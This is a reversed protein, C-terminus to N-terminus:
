LSTIRDITKQSISFTIGPFREVLLSQIEENTKGHAMYKGTETNYVFITDDEAEIDILIHKDPFTEEGTRPDYFKTEEVPELVLDGNEFLKITRRMGLFYGVIFCVLFFLIEM